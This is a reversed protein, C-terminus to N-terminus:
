KSVKSVIPMESVLFFSSLPYNVFVSPVSIFEIAAIATNFRDLSFITRGHLYLPPPLTQNLVETPVVIIEYYM